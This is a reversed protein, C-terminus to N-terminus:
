FPMPSSHILSFARVVGLLIHAPRMEAVGGTSWVRFVRSCGSCASWRPCFAGVLRRRTRPLQRWNPHRYPVPMEGQVGLTPVMGRGASTSMLWRRLAGPDRDPPWTGPRMPSADM